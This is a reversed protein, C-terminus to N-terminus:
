NGTGSTLAAVVLPSGGPITFTVKKSEISKVTYPGLRDGVRVITPRDTGVQCTAFSRGGDALAIGLVLVRPPPIVPTNDPMESPLLYINAPAIRDPAFVDSEIVADINLPKAVPPAVLAASNPLTPPANSALADLRLAQTLSAVALVFAVVVAGLAARM